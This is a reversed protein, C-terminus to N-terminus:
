NKYPFSMLAQNLSIRCIEPVVCDVINIMTKDADTLHNSSFASPHKTGTQLKTM